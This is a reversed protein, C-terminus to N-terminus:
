NQARFREITEIGLTFLKLKTECRRFLRGMAYEQSRAQTLIRQYFYNFSMEWKSEVIWGNHHQVCCVSFWLQLPKVLILASVNLRVKSRKCLVLLLVQRSLAVFTKSVQLKWPRMRFCM